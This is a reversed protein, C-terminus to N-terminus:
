PVVTQHDVPSYLIKHLKNLTSLHLHIEQFVVIQSVKLILNECQLKLLRSINSELSANLQETFVYGHRYIM